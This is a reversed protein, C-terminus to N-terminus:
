FRSNSYEVKFDGGYKGNSLEMFRTHAADSARKGNIKLKKSDLVLKQVPENPILNEKQLQAIIDDLKVGERAADASRRAEGSLTKARAIEEQRARYSEQVAREAELLARDQENLQRDQSDKQRELNRKMAAKQRELREIMTELERVKEEESRLGERERERFFRDLDDETEIHTDGNLLFRGGGYFISDSRLLFRQGDPFSDTHFFIGEGDDGSSRFRFIRGFSEEFDEGLSEMDQGLGEITIDFEQLLGDLGEVSEEWSQIAGDFDGEIDQFEFRKMEIDPFEFDGAEMDPFVYSRSFTKSRSSSQPSLMQEVMPEYEKHEAEPIEKGDIKLSKIKGDEVLFETSKGNRYSSVQHRGRPLTDVAVPVNRTQASVPASAPAPSPVAAICATEAATEAASAETTAPAYAATGVLAILALVPLLFLRSKMQYPINQHHLFRQVRGLLGGPKNTLAVATAPTSRQTEFYLLAKAYPLGGPGHALVVDDCCHEREERIRAGIWWIMPHYQFLVEIFCQLLNWWHDKRQLHALEHLIVAEAEDPTLQNLLAVPFLILPKFHGVLAPGDVYRSVALHINGTLGIRRALDRVRQTLEEPVALQGKSRMRRVRGFSWGLRLIGVLLAVLWLSVVVPLVNATSVSTSEAGSLVFLLNTDTSAAFAVAPEYVYSFTALSVVLQALLTGYALRYRVRASAITRSLAWLIAALVTAQWLSHVITWGLGDILAPSFPLSNMM